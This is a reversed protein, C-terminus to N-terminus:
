QKAVVYTTKPFVEESEIQPFQGEIRIHEITVDAFGSSGIVMLVNDLRTSIFKGSSNSSIYHFFRFYM